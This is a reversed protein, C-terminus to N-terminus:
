EACQLGYGAHSGSFPSCHPCMYCSVYLLKVKLTLARSEVEAACKRIIFPVGDHSGRAVQAFDEGFLALRGQLKRHGCQISLAELCKKHCALSCQPCLVSNSCLVVSCLSCNSCLM